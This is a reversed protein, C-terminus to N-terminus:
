VEGGLPEVLEWYCWCNAPSLAKLGHSKPLVNLICSYCHPSGAHFRVPILGPMTQARGHREVLYFDLPQSRMVPTEPLPLRLLERPLELELPESVHCTNKGASVYSLETGEARASSHFFLHKEGIHMRLTNSFQWRPKECHCESFALCAPTKQIKDLHRIKWSKRENGWCEETGESKRLSVVIAM